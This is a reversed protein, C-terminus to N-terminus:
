IRILNLEFTLYIQITNSVYEAQIRSLVLNSKLYIQIPNLEFALYIQVLDTM